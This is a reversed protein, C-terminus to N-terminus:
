THFSEWDVDDYTGGDNGDWEYNDALDHTPCYHGAHKHTFPMTCCTRYYCKSHPCPCNKHHHSCSGCWICDQLAPCQLYQHDPNIQKCKRCRIPHPLPRRNPQNPCNGPTPENHLQPMHVIRINHQLCLQTAIDLTVNPHSPSHPSQYHPDRVLASGTLYPHLCEMVRSYRLRDKVEQHHIAWLEKEHQLKVERLRISEEQPVLQHYLDVDAAVGKDKLELLAIDIRM